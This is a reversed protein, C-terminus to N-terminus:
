SSTCCRGRCSLFYQYFAADTVDPYLKREVPGRAFIALFTGTEFLDTILLTSHLVM